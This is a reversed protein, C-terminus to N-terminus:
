RCAELAERDRLVGGCVDEFEQLKKKEQEERWILAVLM